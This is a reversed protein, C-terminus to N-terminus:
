VSCAQRKKIKAPIRAALIGVEYLIILPGALMIQTYVDPPTLVAGVIFSGVIAIPRAQGMQGPTLLGVLSLFFMIIPLEFILGIAAILKGTFQIYDTVSLFPRVIGEMYNLLFSYGYPLMCFYAFLSGCIFFSTTTLLFSLLYRKEKRYLGPAAFRWLHWFGFPSNCIIATWFATQLGVYFGDTLQLAILNDLTPQAWVLPDILITLLIRNNLYGIIFFLLFSVFLYIIRQRLEKLHGILNDPRNTM